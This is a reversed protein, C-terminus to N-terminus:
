HGTQDPRTTAHKPLPRCSPAPTPVYVYLPVPGGGAAALTALANGGAVGCSELLSKLPEANADLKPCAAPGVGTTTTSAATTAVILALLAFTKM